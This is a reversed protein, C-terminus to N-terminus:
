CIRCIKQRCCGKTGSFTSMTIIIQLPRALYKIAMDQPINLTPPSLPTLICNEKRIQLALFNQPFVLCPSVCRSIFILVSLTVCSVKFPGQQLYLSGLLLTAEGIEELYDKTQMSTEHICQWNPRPPTFIDTQPRPISRIGLASSSAGHQLHGSRPLM